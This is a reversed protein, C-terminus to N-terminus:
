EANTMCCRNRFANEGALSLLGFALCRFFLFQM